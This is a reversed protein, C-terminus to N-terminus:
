LYIFKGHVNNFMATEDCSRVFGFNIYELRAFEYNSNETFDALIHLRNLNYQTGVVGGINFGIEFIGSVSSVSINDTIIIRTTTALPSLTKNLSQLAGKPNGGRRKVKRNRRNARSKKSM